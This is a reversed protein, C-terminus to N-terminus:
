HTGQQTKPLLGLALPAALHTKGPVMWPKPWDAKLGLPPAAPLYPLQTRAETRHSHPKTLRGMETKEVMFLFSGTQGM